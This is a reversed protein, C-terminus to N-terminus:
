RPASKGVSAPTASLGLAQLIDEVGQSKRAVTRVVKARPNVAHIDRELKEPDVEMAEALDVKNIVVVDANMFMYPHKVVTYPGETVSIVVVRKESGLPFESPCILNGVNEIFLVDLGEVHLEDLARSVLQADLHCEKGTNIQVVEVGHRAIKDADITTTLDGDIAAVKRTKRLKEVMQEILTTKGSGTSGMVDIATVGRARLRERNREALERNARLIDADLEIDLSEGPKAEVRKM